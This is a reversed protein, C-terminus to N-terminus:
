KGGVNVACDNLVVFYGASPNSLVSSRNDAMEMPGCKQSPAKKISYSHTLTVHLYILFYTEELLHNGSKLKGTIM